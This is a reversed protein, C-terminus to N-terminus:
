FGMFSSNCRSKNSSFLISFNCSSSIRSFYYQANCIFNENVYRLTGCLVNKSCPFSKELNWWTVTKLLYSVDEIQIITCTASFLLLHYGFMLKIVWALIAYLQVSTLSNKFISTLKHEVHFMKLCCFKYRIRLGYRYMLIYLISISRFSAFLTYLWCQLVLAPYGDSIKGDCAHREIM